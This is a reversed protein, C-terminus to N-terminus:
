SLAEIPLRNNHLPHEVKPLRNPYEGTLPHYLGILDVSKGQVSDIVKEFLFQASEPGHYKEVYKRGARGLDQRLEPNLILTRLVEVLNEPSASVIPCEGLFSWRRFHLLNDDNELNAVVPIGSAMGEVGSLAYGDFILQEVLIDALRGLSMRVEVNTVGELLLLELDLGESKLIDVADVLFETGKFGRHNPSHAIVIPQDKGSSANQRASVEWKDLDLCLKSPTIVDWRGIGDTGMFGPILVDARKAWYDVRSAVREQERAAEPYSVMLAHATGLSTIRRYIYADSGFPLIVVKKRALNLIFHQARWLRTNDLFLGRFSLFFIDYRLISNLFGMYPRLNRPWLRFEEDLVRDWDSRQHISYFSTTFTESNWGAGSLAKSWYSNNIIPETGWVLRAQRGTRKVFYRSLTAVVLASAMFMASTLWSLIGLVAQFVRVTISKAPRSLMSELRASRPECPETEAM